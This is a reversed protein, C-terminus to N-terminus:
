SKDACYIEIVISIFQFQGFHSSTVVNKHVLYILFYELAHVFLLLFSKRKVFFDLKEVCFKINIQKLFVEAKQVQKAEILIM